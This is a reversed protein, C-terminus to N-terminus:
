KCLESPMTVSSHFGQLPQHGICLTPLSFPQQFFFMHYTSCEQFYLTITFYSDLWYIEQNSLSATITTTVWLHVTLLICRTSIQQQGSLRAINEQVQAEHDNASLSMEFTCNHCYWIRVGVSLWHTQTFYQWVSVQAHVSVELTVLIPQGWHPDLIISLCRLYVFLVSHCFHKRAHRRPSASLWSPPSGLPAPWPNAEPFVGSVVQPSATWINRIKFSYHINYM